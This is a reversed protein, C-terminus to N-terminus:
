AAHRGIRLTAGADRIIQKFVGAYDPRLTTRALFADFGVEDPICFSIRSPDNQRIVDEFADLNSGAYGRYGFLAEGLHCYFDDETRLGTFDLAVLGAVLTQRWNRPSALSMCASIWPYAYAPDLDRWGIPVGESWADLIQARLVYARGVSVVYHQRSDKDKLLAKCCICAVEVEFDRIAKYVTYVTGASLASYSGVAQVGDIVILVDEVVDADETIHSSPLGEISRVRLEIGDGEAESRILYRSGDRDAGTNSLDDLMPSM